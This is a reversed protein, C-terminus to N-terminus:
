LKDVITEEQFTDAHSLAEMVTNFTKTSLRIGDKKSKVVFTNELPPMSMDEASDFLNRGTYTFADNNATSTYISDMVGLDRYTLKGAKYKDWNATKDAPIAKVRINGNEDVYNETKYQPAFKIPKKPVDNAYFEDNKM